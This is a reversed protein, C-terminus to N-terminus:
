QSLYFIGFNVILQNNSGSGNHAALQGVQNGGSGKSAPIWPANDKFNLMSKLQNANTLVHM